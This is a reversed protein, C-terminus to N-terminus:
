KGLPTLTSDTSLGGDSLITFKRLLRFSEGDKELVVSKCIICSTESNQDKKIEVESVHDANEKGPKVTYESFDTSLPSLIELSRNLLDFDIKKDYDLHKIIDEPSLVQKTSFLSLFFSLIELLFKKADELIKKDETSTEKLFKPTKSMVEYPASKSISGYSISKVTSEHFANKIKEILEHDEVDKVIEGKKGGLILKCDHTLTLKQLENSEGYKKMIEQILGVLEAHKESTIRAESEFKFYHGPEVHPTPQITSM